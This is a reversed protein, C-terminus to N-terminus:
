RIPGPGGMRDDVVFKDRAPMVIAPLAQADMVADEPVIENMYLLYAIVAYVQQDTLIGPTLQPMAKRIYDYLTTAYPWYNGIARSGPNVDWQEADVLRDNPGETGTPGHCAVCYTNYVERGQAVSGSGPPLGAGDPRIDIDWAAVRAASAEVGFGFHAPAYDPLGEPTGPAAALAAGEGSAWSNGASPDAGSDPACAALAVAVVTVFSRARMM